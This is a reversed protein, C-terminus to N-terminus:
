KGFHKSDGWERLCVQEGLEMAIKQLQGLAEEQAVDAAARDQYLYYDERYKAPTLNPMVINAGFSLGLKKGQEPSVASLSTAAVMNIDPLNIRLIALSRLALELRHEKPWLTERYQYLPTADHELYPGLGIMDLDLQSLFHLDFAVDELSQFPLGVMVGSGVQYGCKRLSELAKLRESFRHVSDKPHLKEYREQKGSEIRLLYRHAGAEFWYRYVEESQEGCSLTIGLQGNSLKKIKTLLSAIKSVFEKDQREGSQLAISGMGSQYAFDAAELVEKESLEYRELQGNACRIGCYYCNKRCINSFEILGRLYIKRGVVQEKVLYAHGRLQELPSKLLELIEKENMM